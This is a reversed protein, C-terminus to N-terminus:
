RIPGLLDGLRERDHLLDRRLRQIFGEYIADLDLEGIRQAATGALPTEAPCGADRSAAPRPSCGSGAAAGADSPAPTANGGGAASFAVTSRGAGDSTLEAGPMRALEVARDTSAAPGTDQRHAAASVPTITVPADFASAPAAAAPALATTSRQPQRALRLLPQGDRASPALEHITTLPGERASLGASPADHEEEFPPGSHPGTRLAQERTGETVRTIVRAPAAGPEFGHRPAESSRALATVTAQDAPASSESEARPAPPEEPAPTSRTEADPFEPDGLLPVLSAPVAGQTLWRVAEESLPLAPASPVDSVAPPADPVLQLREARPAQWEASQDWSAGPDTRSRKPRRAQSVRAALRAVRPLHSVRV